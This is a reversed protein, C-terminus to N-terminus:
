LPFTKQNMFNSCDITPSSESVSFVLESNAPVCKVILFILNRHFNRLGFPGFNSYNRFETSNRISKRPIGFPNGLRAFRHRGPIFVMLDEAYLLAIEGHAQILRAIFCMWNVTNMIQQMKGQASAIASAMSAIGSWQGITAHLTVYSAQHLLILQLIYTVHQVAVEDYRYYTEQEMIQAPTLLSSGQYEYSTRRWSRRYGYQIDADNDKHVSANLKGKDADNDNSDQGIDM